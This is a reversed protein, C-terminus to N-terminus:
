YYDWQAMSTSYALFMPINERWDMGVYATARCHGEILILDDGQGEAAVLEPLREGRKLKEQIALVHKGPDDGLEGRAMREVVRQPRRTQDSHALWDANRIYKLRSLEDPELEVLRWNVVTPFGRFLLERQAFGRYFLLIRRVANCCENDVDPDDILKGRSLGTLKLLDQVHDRYRPSDVEAKLFALVVQSENVPGHEIM